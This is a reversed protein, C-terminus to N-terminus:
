YVRNLPPVKEILAREINQWASRFLIGWSQRTVGAIHPTLLLRRAAEGDLKLLPNDAAPPETSYVDVAAGGLRGSRLHAALAAEDVVGGRSAQILVAGPKMLALEREGILGQTAPLLPVHLSVVDAAALLADLAMPKAGIAEGAKADRPAPDHYCVRCGLAAFAQAVAMGIAGFGILGVLLGDLGALNDAVMRARFAAYNGAKIEADAWAFRRLLTSATTVVYEAVAGNSGGAVNAVPIGLRTLAERDLRDVGAGTIQVLKLRGGEFLAPALKPGVAPIILADAAHMLTPVDADDPKRYTVRLTAPAPADVRTFDAEPRLCLVDNSMLKEIRPHILLRPLKGDFRRHGADPFFCLLVLPETGANRTVHKEEPPVLVVDGAKISLEGSDSLTRGEGKLVYICEEYGHHLHPGRLTEGPKQVPVEVVRFTIKSDIEGSVMELVARGPLGLRKGEGQKLLRAM